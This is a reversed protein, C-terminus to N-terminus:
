EIESNQAHEALTQCKPLTIIFKRASESLLM